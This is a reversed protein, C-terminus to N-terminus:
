TKAIAAVLRRGLAQAEARVPETPAVGSFEAETALDALRVLDAALAPFFTRLSRAYEGPTQAERRLRGRKGAAECVRQFARQVEGVARRPRATRLRERVARWVARFLWLAAGGLLLWPWAAALMRGLSAALISATGASEAAVAAAPVPAASPVPTATGGVAAGGVRGAPVPDVPVWGIGELAIECWAHADMTTVVWEGTTEDYRHALYGAVLRSPVGVARVMVAFASAFNVCNGGTTGFLFWDVPDETEGGPPVSLDLRYALNSRLANALVLARNWPSAASATWEGARV